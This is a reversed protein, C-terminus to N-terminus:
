SVLCIELLGSVPVLVELFKDLRSSLHIYDNRCQENGEPVLVKNLQIKKDLSEQGSHAASTKRWFRVIM